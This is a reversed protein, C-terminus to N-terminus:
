LIFKEFISELNNYGNNLKNSNNKSVKTIMIDTKRVKIKRFPFEYYKTNLISIKRRCTKFVTIVINFKSALM